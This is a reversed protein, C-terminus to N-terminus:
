RINEIESIQTDIWMFLSRMVKEPKFKKSEILCNKKMEIVSNTDSCVREILESMKIIDHPQFIYGTKGDTILEGNFRWDSAMVPVGAMFSECITTPFGEGFYYTPFILMYYDSVKNLGENSELIGKYKIVNKHKEFLEKYHKEYAEPIPGWIDLYCCCNNENAKIIAEIAEDVGKEPIVRSFTYFVKKTRNLVLKNNITKRMSFIPMVDIECDVFEELERMLEKTEPLLLNVCKISKRLYWKKRLLSTLWGGVVPYVIKNKYIRKLFCYLPMIFKIGNKNPMFIIIDNEKALRISSAILKPWNNKWGSTDVSSISNSGYRKILEKYIGRTKSMQGGIIPNATEYGLYGILGIKM